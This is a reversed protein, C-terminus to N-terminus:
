ITLTSTVIEYAQINFKCNNQIGFTEASDVYEYPIIDNGLAQIIEATESVKQSNTTSYLPCGIQQARLIAYADIAKVYKESLPHPYIPDQFLVAKKTKPNWLLRFLARAVIKGSSDKIAIIRNKGDM